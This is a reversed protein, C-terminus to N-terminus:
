IAKKNKYMGEDARQIMKTADSNESFLGYGASIKIEYMMREFPIPKHFEDQIKHMKREVSTIETYPMIIVFEDGGLRAVFENNESNKPDKTQEVCSQLKVATAILLEDGGNHGYLDNAHKFNDLDLFIVAFDKKEAHYKTEFNDLREFFKRRNPLGTLPDYYALIQYDQALKKYKERELELEEQIRKQKSVDQCSIIICLFSYRKDTAVSASFLVDKVTGDKCRLKVEIDVLNTGTYLQSLDISEAELTTFDTGMLENKNYGLLSGVAHNYKLIEKNEDIVFISNNSTQLIDESSIVLNINFVDHRYIMLFYGIGFIATAINAIAPMVPNTLPLIVDTIVGCLITVTDIIIFLIAMEKKMQHKASKSWQYLIYFAFGFYIVVYLLYVWLWFSTLSNEYTWGWGNTAPIVDQALSTTNGFLNKCILIIMPTFFLAQKWKSMNKKNRSTLVVFYYATFAVFGCWGISSLKHWFWAQERGAASLFFSNCFSWWGLSILVAAASINLTNKREATIAHGAGIFFSTYIITSLASLVNM